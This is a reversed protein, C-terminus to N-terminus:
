NTLQWTSIHTHSNLEMYVHKMEGEGPVLDEM